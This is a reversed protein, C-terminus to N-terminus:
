SDHLLPGWLRRRLVEIQHSQLYDSSILGSIKMLCSKRAAGLIATVVARLNVDDQVPIPM